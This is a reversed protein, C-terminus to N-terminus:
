TSQMFPSSLMKVVNEYDFPKILFDKFGAARLAEINPVEKHGIIGILPIKWLNRREIFNQMARAFSECESEDAECNYLIASVTEPNTFFTKQVGEKSLTKYKIQGM